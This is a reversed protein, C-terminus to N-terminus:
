TNENKNFELIKMKNKIIDWLIVATISAFVGLLFSKTDTPHNFKM